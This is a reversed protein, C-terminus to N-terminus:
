LIAAEDPRLRPHLPQAPRVAFELLITRELFSHNDDSILDVIAGGNAGPRVALGEMNDIGDESSAEFLTTGDLVAGPLVREGPVRVLRVSFGEAFSFKRELVLLDGDPLFAVDSVDFGEHRRLTFAGPRPGDLIFGRHNGSKDLFREAIVVVAGRLPGNQPAVAIAELGQNLPIGAMTRPLPLHAPRATAFDPGAFARVDPRQELSVLATEAGNRMAFRLGEADVDIKRRFPQGFDDLVPAMMPDTIGTLRGNEETLSLKMWFGDDAIAYLTGDTAFDLGSWSGFDRDPSALVLGGRFEVSSGPETAIADAGTVHITAPAFGGDDARSALTGILTACAAIAVAARV